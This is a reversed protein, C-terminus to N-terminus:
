YNLNKLLYMLKLKTKENINSFLKLHFIKSKITKQSYKNNLNEQKEKCEKLEVLDVKIKLEDVIRNDDITDEIKKIMINIEKGNGNSLQEKFDFWFKREGYIEM